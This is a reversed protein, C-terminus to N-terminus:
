WGSWGFRKRAVPPLPWAYLNKGTRPSLITSASSPLRSGSSCCSHAHGRSRGLELVTSVFSPLRDPRLPIISASSSALVLGRSPCFSYTAIM